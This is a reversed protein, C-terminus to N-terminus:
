SDDYNLISGGGTSATYRLSGTYQPRVHAGSQVGPLRPEAEFHLLIWTFRGSPQALWTSVELPQMRDSLLRLWQLTMVSCFTLYQISLFAKKHRQVPKSVFTM